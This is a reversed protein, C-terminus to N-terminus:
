KAKEEFLLTSAYFPWAIASITALIVPGEDRGHKNRNFSHGFALVAGVIYIGILLDDIHKKM